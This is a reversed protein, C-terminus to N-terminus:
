SYFNERIGVPLGPMELLAKLVSLGSEMLQRDRGSLTPFKAGHFLNNRILGTYTVLANIPSATPTSVAWKPGSRGDAKM